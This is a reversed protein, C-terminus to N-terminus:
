GQCRTGDDGNGLIKIWFPKSHGRKRGFSWDVAYWSKGNGNCTSAGKRLKLYFRVKVVHIPLNGVLEELSKETNM